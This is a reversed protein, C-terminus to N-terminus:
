DTHARPKKAALLSVASLAIFLPAIVVYARGGTGRSTEAATIFALALAGGCFFAARKKKGWTGRTWANAAARSLLAIDATLFAYMIPVACLEFFDAPAALSVARYPVVIAFYSAFLFFLSNAKDRPPGKFVLFFLAGFIFLLFVQEAYASWFLSFFDARIQRAPFFILAKVACVAAGFFLGALLAKIHFARAPPSARMPATCLAM